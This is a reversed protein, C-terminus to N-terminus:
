AIRVSSMEVSSQTVGWRRLSSVPMRSPTLRWEKLAAFFRLSSSRFRGFRYSARMTFRKGSWTVITAVSRTGTIFSPEVFKATSWSPLTSAISSNWRLRQDVIGTRRSPLRLIWICGPCTTESLYRVARSM